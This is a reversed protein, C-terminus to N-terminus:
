KNGNKITENIQDLKAFIQKHDERNEIHLREMAKDVESRNNAITKDHGRVKQGLAGIWAALGIITLLVTIASALIGTDIQM